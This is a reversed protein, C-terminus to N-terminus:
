GPNRLEAFKDGGGLDNNWEGASSDRGFASNRIETRRSPDPGPHPRNREVFEQAALVHAVFGPPAPERHLFMEPACLRPPPMQRQCAKVAGAFHRANDRLVDVVQM